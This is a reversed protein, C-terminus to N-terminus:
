RGRSASNRMSSGSLTCTKCSSDFRPSVPYDQTARNPIRNAGASMVVNDNGGDEGVDARHLISTFCHRDGRLISSAIDWGGETGSVTAAVDQGRGDQRRRQTEDVAGNNGDGYRRDAEIEACRKDVCLPDGVGIRQRQRRQDQNAAGCAVSEAQARGEDGANHEENDRGDGARSRRVGGGEDNRARQLADARCDHHRAAQSDDCFGIRFGLRPLAIPM